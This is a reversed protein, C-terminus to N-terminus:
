KQGTVKNLHNRKICNCRSVFLRTLCLYLVSAHQVICMDLRYLYKVVDLPAVLSVYMLSSLLLIFIVIVVDVAGVAAAAAATVFDVHAIGTM